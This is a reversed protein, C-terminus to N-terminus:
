FLVWKNQIISWRYCNDDTDDLACAFQGRTGITTNMLALTNFTTVGTGAPGLPGPIGVFFHLRNGAKRKQGM